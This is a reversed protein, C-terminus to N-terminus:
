HTSNDQPVSEGAHLVERYGSYQHLCGIFIMANVAPAPGIYQPLQIRSLASAASILLWPWSMVRRGIYVGVSVSSVFTLSCFTNQPPMLTYRSCYKGSKRLVGQSSSRSHSERHASLSAARREIATLGRSKPSNVTEM